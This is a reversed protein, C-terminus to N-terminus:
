YSCRCYCSFHETYALMSPRESADAAEENKDISAAAPLGVQGKVNRHDTM